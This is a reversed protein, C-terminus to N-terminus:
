HIECGGCCDTPALSSDAFFFTDPMWGGNPPCILFGVGPSRGMIPPPFPAPRLLWDRAMPRIFMEALM